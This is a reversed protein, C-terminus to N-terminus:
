KPSGAIGGVAAGATEVHQLTHLSLARAARSTFGPLSADIDADRLVM